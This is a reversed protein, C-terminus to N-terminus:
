KKKPAVPEKAVEKPMIWRVVNTMGVYNVHGTRRSEIRFESGDKTIIFDMSRMFKQADNSGFQIVTGVEIAEVEM